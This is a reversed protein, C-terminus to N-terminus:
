PTAALAERAEAARQFRDAPLRALCRAVFRDLAPPVSERVASV